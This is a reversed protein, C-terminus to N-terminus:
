FNVVLKVIHIIIYIMSWITLKLICYISCVLIQNRLRDRFSMFSARTPFGGRLNGIEKFFQHHPHPYSGGLKKGRTLPCTALRSLRPNVEGVRTSTASNTSASPKPELSNIRPPELGRMSMRQYDIPLSPHVVCM